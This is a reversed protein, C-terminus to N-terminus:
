HMSHIYFLFKYLAISMPNDLFISNKERFSETFINIKIVCVYWDKIFLSADYHLFDSGRIKSDRGTDGGEHQLAIWSIVAQATSTEQVLAVVLLRVGLNFYSTETIMCCYLYTCFYLGKVAGFIQIRLYLIM